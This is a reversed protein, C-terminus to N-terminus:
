WNALQEDNEAGVAVTEAANVDDAGVQVAGVAADEETV